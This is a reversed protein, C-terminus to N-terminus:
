NAGAPTIYLKEEDYAIYLHLRRLISVGVLMDIGKPLYDDSVVELRPKSVAIGNFDLLKFPYDYRKYQDTSGSALKLDPSNESVGIKKALRMSIISHRAGTDLFATLKVGDVTVPVKIHGALEVDMPLAVYDSNTWYVVKGACHRQSFLSLTGRLLDIDVDFQKMMDPSLTGDAGVPLNSDVYAPIKNGQLRGLPFTELIVYNNLTNGAVGRLERATYNTELQLNYVQERKITASVGGTDVLFDLKHGNLVAPVTFRGDPMTTIPLTSFRNLNCQQGQAQVPLMSILTLFAGYLLGRHM